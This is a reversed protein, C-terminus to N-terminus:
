AGGELWDQRAASGAPGIVASDARPWRVRPATTILSPFAPPARCCPQARAPLRGLSRPCPARGRTRASERRTRGGRGGNARRVGRAWAKSPTTPGEQAGGEGARLYAAARALTVLLIASPQAAHAHSRPTSPSRGWAPAPLPNAAPALAHQPMGPTPHARPAPGRQPEPHRM